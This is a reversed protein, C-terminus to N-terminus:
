STLEVEIDDIEQNIKKQIGRKLRKIERLKKRRDEKLEDLDDKKSEFKRKLDKLEKELSRGRELFGSLGELEEEVEEKEKKGNEISRKREEIKELDSKVKKIKEELGKDIDIRGEESAQLVIDLFDAVEEKGREMYMELPNNLIKEATKKPEGSEEHKFKRLVRDLKSFTRKIHSKAREIEKDIEEKRKELDSIEDHKESEEHEKIQNSIEEIEQELDEIEEETDIEKKKINELDKEESKVKKETSEAENLARKVSYDENLFRQLEKIKEDVRKVSKKVKNYKRFKTLAAAQKYSMEKLAKMKEKYSDLFDQLEEYSYGTDEDLDSLNKRTKECYDEKLDKISTQMRSSQASYDAHELDRVRELAKERSRNLQKVLEKAKGEKENLEGEKRDKIDKYLNSLSTEIREIEKKKEPSLAEKFKDFIGM